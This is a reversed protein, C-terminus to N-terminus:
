SFFISATVSFTILLAAAAIRASDLVFKVIDLRRRRFVRAFPHSGFSRARV